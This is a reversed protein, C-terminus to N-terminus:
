GNEDPVPNFRRGAKTMRYSRSLALNVCVITAIIVRPCASRVFGRLDEDVNRRGSALLGPKPM